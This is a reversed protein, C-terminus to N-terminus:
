RGLEFRLAEEITPHRFTFGSRELMRPYVRQSALLANDAMEGFVLRLAFAPVSALTPRRLVRGLVAVFEAQTVPNPSTVNVPGRLIDTAIAHRLAAIADARAIWSTWQAGSGLKGGAGLEFVPLLAALMGGTRGLIVGFRAHVTRVGMDRAPAAAGEWERCLEALFGSGSSSSEDLAEAGRDGYYGVASATLFVRPRAPMAAIARAILATTDIRSSAMLRKRVATWRNAIPEGALNVVADVGNLAHHDLQGRAPDWAISDGVGAVGTAGHGDVARTLRLVRHGDAALSSALASGIFGRAGALAIVM